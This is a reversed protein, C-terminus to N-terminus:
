FLNLREDYYSNQAMQSYISENFEGGIQKSFARAFEIHQNRYNEPMKIAGASPFQLWGPCEISFLRKSVGIKKFIFAAIDATAAVIRGTSLGKAGKLVRAPIGMEMPTKDNSLKITSSKVPGRLACLTILEHVIQLNEGFKTFLEALIEQRNFGKYSFNEYFEEVPARDITQYLGNLWRKFEKSKTISSLQKENIGQRKSTM